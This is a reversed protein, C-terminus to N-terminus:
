VRAPQGEALRGAVREMAEAIMRHERASGMGKITNCRCCIIWVNGLTYPGGSDIRDLSPSDDRDDGGRGLDFNLLTGCCPCLTPVDLDWHSLLRDDFPMGRRLSRWRAQM